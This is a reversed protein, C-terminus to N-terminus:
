LHGGHLDVLYSTEVSHEVSDLEALVVELHTASSGAHESTYTILRLSIIKYLGLVNDLSDFVERADFM